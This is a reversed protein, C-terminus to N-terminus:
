APEKSLRKYMIFGTGFRLPRSVDGERLKLLEDRLHPAYMSIDVSGLSRRREGSVLVAQRLLSDFDTGHEVLSYLSDAEQQTASVLGALIRIIPDRLQV